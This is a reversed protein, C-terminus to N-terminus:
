EVAPYKGLPYEESTVQRGLGFFVGSSGPPLPPFQPPYGGRRRTSIHVRKSQQDAYVLITSDRVQMDGLDATLEWRLIKLSASVREM